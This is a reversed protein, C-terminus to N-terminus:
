LGDTRLTAAVPLFAPRPYVRRARAFRRKFELCPREVLCYSGLTCLGTLLFAILLEQPRSWGRGFIQQFIAAHWLYLGYSVKGGYVLWRQSFTRSLLGAEHTVIELIILGAGLSCLFFWVNEAFPRNFDHRFSLSVLLLVASWAGLGVLVRLLPIPQYFGSGLLVALFCGVLLSDARTDTGNFVRDASAGGAVLLIRLTVFLFLTVLLYQILSARAATRKLLFALTLPWLLYFQEEISLSWTHAFLIPRDFGLARGWNSVYFAPFLADRLSAFGFAASRMFNWAVFTVLVLALAPLLRLARRAYFRRLSIAGYQDWEAILLSTILFGSLVFFTNVGIFAAGFGNARIDPLFAHVLVITLISVGRLGDLCPLYGTGDQVPIPAGLPEDADIGIPPRYM